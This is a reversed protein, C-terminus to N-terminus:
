LVVEVWCNPTEYLRLKKCEVETKTLLNPLIEKLLHLAINEATPPCDLYYINQGTNNNILNGLERDQNSLITNHDFFQDIWGGIIKKIEGFDIVRGLKDLQNDQNKPSLYVELIYRHGHLMKCKSEHNIIRHASDFEIKRISNIM